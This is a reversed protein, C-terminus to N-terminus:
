VALWLLGAWVRSLARIHARLAAMRWVALAGVHRGLNRERSLRELVVIAVAGTSDIGILKILRKDVHM